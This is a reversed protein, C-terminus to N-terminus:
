HEGSKRLHLMTYHGFDMSGFNLPHRLHERLQALVQLRGQALLGGVVRVHEEDRPLPLRQRSVLADEGEEGRAKGVQKGRARRM